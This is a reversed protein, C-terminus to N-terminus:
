EQEKTREGSGSDEVVVVTISPVKVKSESNMNFISTSSLDVAQCAASCSILIRTQMAALLQTSLWSLRAALLSLPPPPNPTFHSPVIRKM